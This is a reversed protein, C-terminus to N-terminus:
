VRILRWLQSSGLLSADREFHIRMGPIEVVRGGRCKASWM